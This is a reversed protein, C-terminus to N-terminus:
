RRPSGSTNRPYTCSGTFGHFSYDKGSAGAGTQVRDGFAHALLEQGDIILRHHIVGDARQHQRPDPVDQDYRGRLVQRSEPAQQAVPGIVAHAEGVRLLRRRVPQRLCEDDAFLEDAIIRGAQHQAVINEVAVAEHLQKARRHGIGFFALRRDEAVPNGVRLSVANGLEVGLAVAQRDLLLWRGRFAVVRHDAQIEVGVLHDGYGFADFWRGAALQFYGRHVLGEKGITGQLDLGQAAAEGPQIRSRVIGQGLGGDENLDQFLSGAELDAAQLIDREPIAPDGCLLETGQGGGHCLVGVALIQQPYRLFSLSIKLVVSIHIEFSGFGFLVEQFGESAFGLGAVLVGVVSGLGLLVAVDLDGLDEFFGGGVFFLVGFDPEFVEVVADGAGFLVKCVGGGTFVKFPGVHVGAHGAFGALFAELLDGELELHHAGDFFLVLLPVSFKQRVNLITQHERTVAVGDPLAGVAAVDHDAGLSRVDAGDAVM